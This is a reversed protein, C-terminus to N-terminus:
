AAVKKLAYSIHRSQSRNDWLVLFIFGRDPWTKTRAVIKGKQGPYDVHTVSDGINLM